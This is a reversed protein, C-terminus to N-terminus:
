VGLFIEIKELRDQLDKINTRRDRAAELADLRAYIDSLNVRSHPTQDQEAVQRALQAVNASRTLPVELAALRSNIETGNVRKLSSVLVLLDELQTPATDIAFNLLKEFAVIAEHNPLFSALVQRDLKFNSM